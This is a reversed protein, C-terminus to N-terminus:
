SKGNKFKRKRNKYIRKYFKDLTIKKYINTIYSPKNFYKALNGEIKEGKKSNSTIKRCIFKEEGVHSVLVPRLKEMNGDIEYPFKVLWIDGEEPIKSTTPFRSYYNTNRKKM